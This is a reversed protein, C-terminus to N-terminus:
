GFVRDAALTAVEEETFGSESLVDATHEGITPAPGRPRVEADVIEFPAGIVRYSTGDRTPVEPFADYEALQPDAIVEPVSAVAAWLLEHEDLRAGWEALDRTAFIADLEPILAAGHKQMEPTTMYRPDDVLDERELCRAFRNWYRGPNVMVLMLWRGDRTRYPNWTVISQRTRDQHPRPPLGGLQQQIDGALTYVGARQLAIDVFQAEGTQDRQRLAALTAALATMSTTHDGQGGRNVTPAEDPKGIMGMIGSRAWFSSADFGPKDAEPGRAGYGTISTYVLRPNRQRLEDFSLDYRAVRERVLNTVFIDAGECLRKVVESAAPQTLDLSISRKGRNEFEFNYNRGDGREAALHGRYFDGTPPEVKVVVAGMDAMLATTGPAALWNAVEIVRLGDLPGTM